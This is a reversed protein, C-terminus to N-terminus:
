SSRTGSFSGTGLAGYECTGEMANGNVVGEFEVAGADPSDFGFTVQNGEVTGTVEQDGLVGTYTGTIVNGAAQLTFTARGSGADLVVDLVWTGAVGQASAPAAWGILAAATALALFARRIM